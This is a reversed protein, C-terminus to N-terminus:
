WLVKGKGWGGKMCGGLNWSPKGKGYPGCGWPDGGWAGGGWMPGYGMAKGGGKGKGDGDSWGTGGTVNVAKMQGAGRIPDEEVDFCLWDGPQPRGGKCDKVHVFIDQGELEIFGWGKNENFSKVAGQYAGTGVVAQGPGKGKGKGQVGPGGNMMAVGTCGTVNKAKMQGARVTDEELDFTITDGVQPRGDTCDNVHLFVDASEHTVFGWGKADNFSKVQGTYAM